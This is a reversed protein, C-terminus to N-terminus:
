LKNPILVLMFIHLYRIMGPKKEYKTTKKATSEPQKAKKEVIDINLQDAGTKLKPATCSLEQKKEIVALCVLFSNNCYNNKLM